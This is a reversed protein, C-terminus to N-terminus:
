IEIRDFGQETKKQALIKAEEERAKEIFRLDEFDLEYMETSSAKADVDEFEKQLDAIAGEGGVERIADLFTTNRHDKKFLKFEDSATEIKGQKIKEREAKKRREEIIQTAEKPHPTVLIALYEVLDMM